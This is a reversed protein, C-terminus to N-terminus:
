PQSANYPRGAPGPPRPSGCTRPGAPVSWRAAAEATFLCQWAGDPLRQVAHLAEVYGVLEEDTLGELEQRYEDLLSAILEGRHPVHAM